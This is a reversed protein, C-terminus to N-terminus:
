NVYGLASLAEIEGRTRGPAVKPAKLMAGRKLALPYGGPDPDSEIIRELLAGTKSDTWEKHLLEKPDSALNCYWKDQIKGDRDVTAVWKQDGMVIARHQRWGDMAELSIPDEARREEILHGDFKTSCPVDLYSLLTPTLDVLSVFSQNRQAKGGPRRIALPVRMIPEWIHVGHTFYREHEIMTEGHDATFVVVSKDVLGLETYRDLFRGIERDVYAIEEDYRDIYELGDDTGEIRQYEQIRKTEIPRPQDHRFDTTADKPPKYPGHPDIYHIWLFHPRSPDRIKNLWEIAADTTRSARREYILRNPEREDVFDDYHEFRTSLGSAEATLVVNSVIGATQYGSRGLYDSLLIVENSIRQYLLRVGHNSPYLGSLLSILSPTTSAEYIEADAFFVDLSLSTKRHYGYLSLHDHRLADVTILLLNPGKVPHVSSRYFDAPYSDEIPPISRQNKIDKYNRYGIYAGYPLIFIIGLSVIKKIM